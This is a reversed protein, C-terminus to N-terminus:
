RARIHDCARKGAELGGAKWIVVPKERTTERVVKLFRRGDRVQEVYGAIVKTEPDEAFYELYDTFTLDCENGSSVLKSIRLGREAITM